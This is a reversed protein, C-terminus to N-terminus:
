QPKKRHQEASPCTAFHSIYRRDTVPQKRQEATLYRVIDEVLILNGDPTPDPDLPIKRGRETMYWVIEAGCSFCLAM